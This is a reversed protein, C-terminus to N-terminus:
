CAATVAGDWSADRVAWASFYAGRKQGIGIAGKTLYLAWAWDPEFASTTSSWYGEQVQEFPHGDPLAPSHRELDVLTDLENINPLRWGYGKGPPTGEPNLSAAAKLAEEWTLVGGTLDALRRWRLGTLLDTVTDGDAEFRPGPPSPSEADGCVPWLMFYQQKNGYFCRAGEMHVYWAYERNIAATTSTWYWNLMVNRFPHGQPLAPNREQFSLLSRLERRDPLRWGDRGLATEMNMREVFDHAESWDLPYEAIGADRAWELGTLNDRVLAGGPGDPLSFRPQPWPAGRRLEGDQGSGPCPILGGAADYCNVQGTQIYAHDM